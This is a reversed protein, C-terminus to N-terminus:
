FLGAALNIMTALIATNFSFAILSHLTSIRRLEKSMITIDATQASAGLIISFHVFDWYDPPEDGPFDLGEKHPGNTEEATYYVHAYHVAFVIQVFLWSTIITGAALALRLPHGKAGGLEAVIAAVSAVAAVTALLLIFHRGEDHEIARRKMRDHNVDVMGILTLILFILAGVDWGILARTVDPAVWPRALLYIAVGVLAGALLHPRSAFPQLIRPWQRPTQTEAM